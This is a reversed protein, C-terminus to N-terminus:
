INEHCYQCLGTELMYAIDDEEFKANCHLCKMNNSIIKIYSIANRESNFSIPELVEKKPNLLLTCGTEDIELEIYWKDNIKIPKM